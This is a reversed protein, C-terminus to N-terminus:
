VARGFAVSRGGDRLWTGDEGGWWHWWSPCIVDAGGGQHDECLEGRHAERGAHHHERPPVAGGPHAPLAPAERGHHHRGGDVRDGRPRRPLLGQRHRPQPLSRSPLPQAPTPPPLSPPNDCLTLFPPPALACLRSRWSDSVGGCSTCSVILMPTAALVV